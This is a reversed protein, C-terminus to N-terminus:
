IQGVETVIIQSSTTLVSGEWHIYLSFYFGSYKNQLEKSTSIGCSVKLLQGGQM